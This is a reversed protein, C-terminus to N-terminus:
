KDNLIEIFKELTINGYLKLGEIIEEEYITDILNMEDDLVMFTNYKNKDFLGMATLLNQKYYISLARNEIYGRKIFKYRKRIIDGMIIYSIRENEKLSTTVIFIGIIGISFNSYGNLFLLIYMFMLSIGILISTMIMIRNAKRYTMKLNLISRLIRGGDLPFAPILNFLGIALNISFFMYFISSCFNKYAFYFVASFILNAVPGSISIMLDERPFAEDIDKLKIVAGIAIFEIDFGSFKYYRAVLYHVMEHFFVIIFTYILKGKYGIFILFIVYPIFYKSIKIM